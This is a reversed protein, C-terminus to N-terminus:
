DFTVLYLPIKFWLLFEWLNELRKLEFDKKCAASEISGQSDWFAMEFGNTGYVTPVSQYGKYMRQLDRPNAMCNMEVSNSEAPQQILSMWASNRLEERQEVSLKQSQVKRLDYNLASTSGRPPCITVSPFELESVPHTSITSLIPSSKWELYSNGILVLAGSFALCVALLWCYRVANSQLAINVNLVTPRGNSM